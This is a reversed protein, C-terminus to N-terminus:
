RSGYKEILEVHRASLPFSGPVLGFAPLDGLSVKYSVEVTLPAGRAFDGAEVATELRRADLGLGQAVQEARQRAAAGASPSDISGSATRAAERAVSELASKTSVIRGTAVIVAILLVLVPTVMVLEVAANGGEARARM